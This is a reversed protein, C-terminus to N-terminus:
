ENTGSEVVSAIVKQLAQLTFNARGGLDNNRLYNYFLLTNVSEELATRLRAIEKSKDESIAQIDDILNRLAIYEEAQQETIFRGHEYNERVKKSFYNRDRNHGYSFVGEYSRTVKPLDDITLRKDPQNTM